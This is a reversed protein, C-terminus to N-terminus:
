MQQTIQYFKNIKRMKIPALSSTPSKQRHSCLFDEAGLTRQARIEPYPGGKCILSSNLHVLVFFSIVRWTEGEEEAERIIWEDMKAAHAEEVDLGGEVTRGLGSLELFRLLRREWHPNSLLVRISGPDRGEWAEVRAAALTANPCHLLAHSRTMRAADSCHWSKTM